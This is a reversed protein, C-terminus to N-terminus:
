RVEFSMLQGTIAICVGTCSLVPLLLCSALQAACVWCASQVQHTPCSGLMVYSSGISAIRLFAFRICKLLPQNCCRQICSHATPCAYTSQLALGLSAAVAAIRVLSHM